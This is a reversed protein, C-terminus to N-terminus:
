NGNVNFITMVMVMVSFLLNIQLNIVQDVVDRSHCMYMYVNVHVHVHLCKRTFANICTSTYM